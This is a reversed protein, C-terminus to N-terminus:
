FSDHLFKFGLKTYKTVCVAGEERKKRVDDNYNSTIAYSRTQCSGHFNAFMSDHVEVKGNIIPWSTLAGNKTFDRLKIMGGSNDLFYSFMMGAKYIQGDTYSDVVYHNVKNPFVFYAMSPPANAYFELTTAPKTESELCKENSSYGVFLTDRITTKRDTTEHLIHSPGISIGMFGIRSDAIQSGTILVSSEVFPFVGINWSKWITSGDMTTCDGDLFRGSSWIVLGYMNSHASNGTVSFGATNKCELGVTVIGISASGAAANGVFDGLDGLIEFNAIWYSDGVLAFSSITALNNLMNINHALIKFSSGISNFAVNSELSVPLSGAVSKSSADIATAGQSYYLVAIASNFPDKIV